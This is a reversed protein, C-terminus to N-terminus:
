QAADPKIAEARNLVVMIDAALSVICGDLAKEPTAGMELIELVNRKHKLAIEEGIKIADHANM